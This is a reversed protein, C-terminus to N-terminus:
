KKSLKSLQLEVSRLAQELRTVEKILRGDRPQIKLDAEAERLQIKVRFWEQNLVIARTGEAYMQVQKVDSLMAPVPGGLSSYAAGASLMAVVVSTYLTIM